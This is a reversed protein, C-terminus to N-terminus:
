NYENLIEEIKTLLDELEIIGDKYQYVAFRIEKIINDTKM